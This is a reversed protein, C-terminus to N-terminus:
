RESRPRSPLSLRAQWCGSLRRLRCPSCSHRVRRPSFTSALRILCRRSRASARESTIQLDRGSRSRISSFPNAATATRWGEGNLRLRGGGRDHLSPGRGDVDRGRPAHDGPGGAPGRVGAGGEPQPLLAGDGPRVAIHGDAVRPDPVVRPRDGSWPRRGWRCTSGSMGDTSSSPTLPTPYLVLLTVSM